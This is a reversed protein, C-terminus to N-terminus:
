AISMESEPANKVDGQVSVQIYTVTHDRGTKRAVVTTIVIISSIIMAISIYGLIATTMM